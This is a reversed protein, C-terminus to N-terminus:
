LTTILLEELDKEAIALEKERKEKSLDKDNKIMGILRRQEMIEVKKTKM